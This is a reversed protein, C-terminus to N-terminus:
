ERASRDEGRGRGDRFAECRMCVAGSDPPGAAGQLDRRRRWPLRDLRGQLDPRGQLQLDAGDGLHRAEGPPGAAARSTRISSEPCPALPWIASGPTATPAPARRWRLGGLSAAASRSESRREAEETDGSSRLGHQLQGLPLAPPLLSALCSGEPPPLLFLFTSFSTSSLKCTPSAHFHSSNLHASSPRQKCIPSTHCLFSFKQSKHLPASGFM